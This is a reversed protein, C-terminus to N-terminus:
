SNSGLALWALSWIGVCNFLKRAFSRWKSEDQWDATPDSHFPRFRSSIVAIESLDSGVFLFRFRDAVVFRIPFRAPYQSLPGGYISSANKGRRQHWRKEEWRETYTPIISQKFIWYAYIVATKASMSISHVDNWYYQIFQGVMMKFANKIKERRPSHPM